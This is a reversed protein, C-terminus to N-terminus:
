AEVRQGSRTQVAVLRPPPNCKCLCLDGDLAYQRGEHAVDLRPGDPAIVGDSLCRPCSVTDGELAIAAGDIATLSSASTVEGGATTTAGLTMYFRDPM